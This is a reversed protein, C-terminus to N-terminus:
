RGGGRLGFHLCYDVVLRSGAKERKRRSKRKKKRRRKRRRGGVLLVTSLWDVVLGRSGRFGRVSV